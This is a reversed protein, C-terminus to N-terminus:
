IEASLSLCINLIELSKSIPLTFVSITSKSGAAEEACTLSFAPGYGCRCAIRCFIHLFLGFLLTVPLCVRVKRSDARDKCRNLASNRAGLSPKM